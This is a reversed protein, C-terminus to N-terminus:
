RIFVVHKKTLFNFLTVVIIAVVKSYFYIWFLIETCLYMILQNFLLGLLTFAMFVSFELTYSSFKGRLFILKISLIYNISSGIMFGIAASILYNVYFFDTLIFLTMFDIFATSCGIIIFRFIQVKNDQSVGISLPKM